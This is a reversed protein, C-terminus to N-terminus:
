YFPGSTALEIAIVLLNCYHKFNTLPFTIALFLAIHTIHIPAHNISNISKIYASHMKNSLLSPIFYNRELSNYVYVKFKMFNSMILWYICIHQSVHIRAHDTLYIVLLLLVKKRSRVKSAINYFQKFQMICNLNFSIICWDVIIYGYFTM